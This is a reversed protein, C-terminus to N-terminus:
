ASTPAPSRLWSPTECRRGCDHSPRDFWPRWVRAEAKDIHARLALAGDDLDAVILGDLGFRGADFMDRAREVTISVYAILAVRPFRLKLVRVRELDPPTRSDGAYLDLIAVHM